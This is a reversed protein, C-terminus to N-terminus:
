ALTRRRLYSCVLAGDRVGGRAKKMHGQSAMTKALNCLHLGGNGIQRTIIISGAIRWKESAVILSKRTKLASLRKSPWSSAMGESGRRAGGNGGREWATIAGASSGGRHHNKAAAKRTQRKAVGDNTALAVSTSIHSLSLKKALKRWIRWRNFSFAMCPMSSAMTQWLGSVINCVGNERKEERRWWVGNRWQRKAM